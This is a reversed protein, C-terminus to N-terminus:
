GSGVPQGATGCFRCESDSRFCRNRNDADKDTEHDVRERDVRFDDAPNRTKINGSKKIDENCGYKLIPSKAKQM